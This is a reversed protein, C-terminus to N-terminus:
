LLYSLKGHRVFVTAVTTNITTNDPGTTQITRVNKLVIGYRPADLTELKLEAGPAGKVEIDIGLDEEFEALQQTLRQRQEEDQVALLQRKLSQAHSARQRPYVSFKGGGGGRAIYHRAQARSSFDLHRLAHPTAQAM